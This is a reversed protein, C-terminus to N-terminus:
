SDNVRTKEPGCHERKARRFYNRMTVMRSVNGTSFRNVLKIAPVLMFVYATDPCAPTDRDVDPACYGVGTQTREEADGSPKRLFDVIVDDVMNQEREGYISGKRVSTKIELVIAAGNM